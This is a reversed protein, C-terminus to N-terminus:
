SHPVTAPDPTQRGAWTALVVQLALVVLIAGAFFPVADQDLSQTALLAVLAAIDVLAIAIAARALREVPGQVAFIVQLLILGFAVIVVMTGAVVYIPGVRDSEPVSQLTSAWGYVLLLGAVFM